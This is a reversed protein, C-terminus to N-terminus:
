KREKRGRGSVMWGNKGGREGRRVGFFFLFFISFQMKKPNKIKIEPFNVLGKLQSSFPKHAFTM